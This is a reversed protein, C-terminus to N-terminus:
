STASSPRATKHPLPRVGRLQSTGGGPFGRTDGARHRRLLAPLELSPVRIDEGQELPVRAGRECGPDVELLPGGGARYGEERSSLPGARAVEQYVADIAGPHEREIREERGREWREGGAEMLARFWPFADVQIACLAKDWYEFGIREEHVLRLLDGPHTGDVRAQVVLDHSRGLIPLPDLQISGIEPLLERIGSDGSPYPAGHLKVAWLQYIRAQPRTLTIEMESMKSAAM